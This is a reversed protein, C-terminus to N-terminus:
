LADFKPKVMLLSPTGFCTPSAARIGAGSNLLWDPLGDIADTALWSEGEVGGDYSSSLCLLPKRLVIGFSSRVIVSM